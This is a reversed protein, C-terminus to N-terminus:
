GLSGGRMEIEVGMRVWMVRPAHGCFFFSFFIHFFTALANPAHGRPCTSVFAMLCFHVSHMYFMPLTNWHALSMRKWSTAGILFTTVSFLLFLFFVVPFTAFVFVVVLLLLGNMNIVMQRNTKKNGKIIVHDTNLNNQSPFNESAFLLSLFRVRSIKLRCKTPPPTWNPPFTFIYCNLRSLGSFFM